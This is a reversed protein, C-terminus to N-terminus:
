ELQLNIAVESTAGIMCCGRSANLVMIKRFSADFMACEVKSSSREFEKECLRSHYELQRVGVDNVDVCETPIVPSSWALQRPGKRYVDSQNM